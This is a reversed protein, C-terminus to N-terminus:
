NAGASSRFTPEDNEVHGDRGRTAEAKIAAVRRTLRPHSRHIETLFGFIPPVLREQEIFAECNMSENLRRCGCGLMQLATRSVTPDKALYAGIRDCTYERARSYARGLFPVLCAPLRLANLWPNLHGAAHHGLEHGVVFRVQADSTADILASTLFVFRRGCLRRAFANFIGNSNYIFTAPPTSLGIERSCEVVMAYLQPFQRPSLLIMNGFASARYVAGAILYIATFSLGYGTVEHVFHAGPTNSHWNVCIALGLIAWLVGGVCITLAQYIKEQTTRFASATKTM